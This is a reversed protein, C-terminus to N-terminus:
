GPESRQISAYTRGDPTAPDTGAVRSYSAFAQVREISLKVRTRYRYLVALVGAAM